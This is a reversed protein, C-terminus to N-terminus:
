GTYVVGEKSVFGGERIKEALDTDASEKPLVVGTVGWLLTAKRALRVDDTVVFLPFEVRRRAYCAIKQLDDSGSLRITIAAAREKGARECLSDVIDADHLCHSVTDIGFSNVADFFKPDTVTKRVIRRMMGVAQDPYDGMATEESLMVADAGDYMANAVDSVEARTPHPSSVMSDLMHTAVIVPKGVQRCLAIMRRQARPVDEPLIEVGLDGRAVMIGDVESVIDELHELASPKEIKAIIGVKGSILEKAQRVDDPHQVFSLAIWDVGRSVAFQLDVRDKETVASIPLHVKPINVGKRQKLVGGTVVTTKLTDKSVGEVRFCLRGDDVLIDMGVEAAEFIEPHMLSVERENGVIEELRFTFTDGSQLSVGGEDFFEGVRLKPGQLDALIGLPRGIRGELARIREIRGGQEEDVAHSFNLRFVDVGADVLSAIGESSESVPGLTAIIKGFHVDESVADSIASFNTNM